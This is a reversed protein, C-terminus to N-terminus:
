SPSPSSEQTLSEQLLSTRGEATIFHESVHIAVDQALSVFGHQPRFYGGNPDLVEKLENNLVEVADPLDRADKTSTFLVRYSLEILNLVVFHEKSLSRLSIQPPEYEGDEDIFPDTITLDVDDLSNGTPTLKFSFSQAGNTFGM